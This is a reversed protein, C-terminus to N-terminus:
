RRLFGHWSNDTACPSRVTHYHRGCGRLRQCIHNSFIPRCCHSHCVSPLEARSVPGSARRALISLHSLSAAYFSHRAWLSFFSPAANRHPGRHCSLPSHDISVVIRPIITHCHSTVATFSPRSLTVAHHHPAQKVFSASDWLLVTHTSEELTHRDHHTDNSRSLTRQGRASVM